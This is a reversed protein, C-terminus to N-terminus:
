HATAAESYQSVITIGHREMAANIIPRSARVGDLPMAMRSVLTRQLVGGPGMQWAWYVFRMVNRNIHIQALEDAFVEPIAYNEVIEVNM